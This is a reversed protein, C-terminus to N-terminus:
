CSVLTWALMSPLPIELKINLLDHVFDEAHCGSDKLKFSRTGEM